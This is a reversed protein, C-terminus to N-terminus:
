WVVCIIKRKDCNIQKKYDIKTIRGSFITKDLYKWEGSVWWVYIGYILYEVSFSEKENSIDRHGQYVYL